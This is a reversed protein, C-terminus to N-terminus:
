YRICMIGVLSEPRADTGDASGASTTFSYSHAHGVSTGSTTFSYSHTHAASRGSTTFSYTHMHSANQTATTFSYTHGHDINTADITILAPNGAVNNDVPGGVRPISTGGYTGGSVTHSHTANGTMASTIGSGTHSHLASETSTTGGGTHTHDVSETGTTGSGTHTHDASQDSTTGSGTHTHTKNQSAQATGVAVGSSRSRLFRGTNTGNPLNFTTVGDGAGYTTGIVAYLDSADTRSLAQGNCEFSGNPPTVGAHFFFEGVKESDVRFVGTGTCVFRTTVGFPLQVKSAGMSVFSPFNGTTNNSINYAKSYNPLIINLAATKAGVMNIYPYRAQNDTLTLDGGTTSIQAFGAIAIDILTIVQDNLNQGWANQNNGTGQLLLKLSATLTDAAM